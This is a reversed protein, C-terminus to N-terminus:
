TLSRYHGFVKAFCFKLNNSVQAIQQWPSMAAENFQRGTNSRSDILYLVFGAAADDDGTINVPVSNWRLEVAGGRPRERLSVADPIEPLGIKVHCFVATFGWLTYRLCCAFM